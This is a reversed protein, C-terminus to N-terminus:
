RNRGSVVVARFSLDSFVGRALSRTNLSVLLTRSSVVLDGVRRSEHRTFISFLSPAGSDAIAASKSLLGVSPARRPCRSAGSREARIPGRRDLSVDALPQRTWFACSRFPPAVNSVAIASMVWGRDTVAGSTARRTADRRTAIARRRAATKNPSAFGARPFEAAAAKGGPTLHVSLHVFRREREGRPWQARHRAIRVAFIRPAHGLVTYECCAEM